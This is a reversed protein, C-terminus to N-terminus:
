NNQPMPVWYLKLRDHVPMPRHNDKRVLVCIAEASAFCVEDVFLAQRINLSSSGIRTVISGVRVLSPAKLERHFNMTLKVILLAAAATEAHIEPAFVLAIRGEEFLSAMAAHNVHGFQDTDRNRAPIEVWARFADPTPTADRVIM